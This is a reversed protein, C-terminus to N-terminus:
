QVHVHMMECSKYVCTEYYTKKMNWPALRKFATLSISEFPYAVTLQMCMVAPSMTQILVQEVHVCHAGRGLEADGVAFPARTTNSLSALSVDEGLCHAIRGRQVGLRKADVPRGKGENYPGHGGSEVRPPAIAALLVHYEMRQEESECSDERQAASASGALAVSRDTDCAPEDRARKRRLSDYEAMAKDLCARAADVSICAAEERQKDAM